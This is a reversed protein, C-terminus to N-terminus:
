PKVELVSNQSGFPSPTTPLNEDSMWVGDVLYGFEYRGPGLRKTKTFRGQKNKKMEEEKWGNWSGKLKVDEADLDLTFIVSKKTIKVM